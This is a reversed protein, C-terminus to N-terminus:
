VLGVTPDGPGSASAALRGARTPSGGGGVRTRAVCVRVGDRRFGRGVTTSPLV